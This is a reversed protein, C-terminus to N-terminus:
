NKFKEFLQSMKRSSKNWNFENEILKRSNIKLKNYLSSETLLKNIWFSFISEKSLIGNKKHQILKKAEGVPTVIIPLSCSLAELMSNSLGEYKSPLIFIDAASFYAEIYNYIPGTIIINQSIKGFEELEKRTPGVILFILNLNEQAIKLLINPQKQITAQGVYVIVSENEKISYKNRIYSRQIQNFKFKDIKVGNYILISKKNNYIKQIADYDEKCNCIIASSYKLIRKRLWTFLIYYIKSLISPVNLAMFQMSQIDPGATHSILTKRFTKALFYATISPTMLQKSYVIDPKFKIMLFFGRIYGLILFLTGRIWSEDGKLGVNYVHIKDNQFKQYSLVKINYNYIETLYRYFYYSAKSGGSIQPPFPTIMLIKM